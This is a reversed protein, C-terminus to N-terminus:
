AQQTQRNASLAHDKARKLLDAATDVTASGSLDEAWVADAIAEASAGGGGGANAIINAEAADLEAKTPADYTALEAAVEATSIDNLAAIDAAIDHPHIEESGDWSITGQGLLTSGSFFRVGYLGAGAGPMDGIYIGLSGVESCAIDGGVQAGAATYVRAVVTLGTQNSPNGYYQLEDAM